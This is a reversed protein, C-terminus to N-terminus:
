YGVYDHVLRFDFAPLYSSQTEFRKYEIVLFHGRSMGTTMDSLSICPVVLKRSM